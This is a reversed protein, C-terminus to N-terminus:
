IGRGICMYLDVGIIYVYTNKGWVRFHQTMYSEFYHVIFTGWVAYNSQTGVSRTEM